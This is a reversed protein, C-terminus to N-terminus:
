IFRERVLQEYPTEAALEALRGLMIYGANLYEYETGPAFVPPQTFVQDILEQPEVHDVLDFDLEALGSEQQLLMRVTIQDGGAATPFWEDVTDELSLTGEQDLQHVLAATFLKTM